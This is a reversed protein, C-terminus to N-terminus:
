KGFNRKSWKLFDISKEFEKEDFDPWLKQSFFYESYDSDYLMFWSHRIDGGTRIILDPPPYDATDLFKKFGKEDLSNIDIWSAFIKKTARIIEDQWSYVLATVLIMWSNNKTENKVIKLVKQSELPLKEIDWITEFKINNEQLEPLLDQLKEILKIIWSIEESDRKFLNEKSLAWLTLYKISSNKSSYRIIKVANEFWAKHWFITPLFKQKAWRRNWDMIIWIHM